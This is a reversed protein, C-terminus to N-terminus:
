SSSFTVANGADDVAVCFSTTPCSVAALPGADVIDFPEVWSGGAYLLAHGSRDVAACFSSDPCSVSWLTASGDVDVPASWSTGNWTAAAGAQGVAACFGASACSVSQIVPAGPLTAPGSWAAGNWTFNHGAFDLARCTTGSCSLTSIASTSDLETRTWSTGDFVVVGGLDGAACLTSSACSVSSFFGNPDVLVPVSWQTGNWTVARGAFDIAICFSTSVCSVSRLSTNGDIDSGAWSTGDFAFADGTLDVAMCFTPSVCSVSTPASSPDLHTPASWSAETPGTYSFQDGAAPPSAGLPSQVVVDVISALGGPFPPVTATVETNSVVTFSTAAAAGFSVGSVGSAFGVGTITVTTGGTSPGQAPSLADVAPWSQGGNLTHLVLAGSTGSGVVWCSTASVCAVGRLTAGAPQVPEAAWTAGGDHSARVPSDYADTVPGGVAVCNLTDVCDLAASVEPGSGALPTVAWTSGADTSSLAYTTTPGLAICRQTSPCSLAGLAINSGGVGVLQVAFTQGGDATSVVLGQEETFVPDSTEPAPYRVFGIQGVAVCVEVSPCAVAALDIGWVSDYSSPVPPRPWAMDSWTAGADTSRELNGASSTSWCDTTDPCAVSELTSQGAVAPMSGATWRAGGDSSRLVTDGDGVAVCHATDACSVATLTSGAAASVASDWHAGADGTTEVFPESGATGGVAVCTSASPCSIGHLAAGDTTALQVFWGLCGSLTGAAVVAAAAAGARRTVTTKPRVGAM